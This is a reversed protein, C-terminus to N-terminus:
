TTTAAYAGRSFDYPARHVGADTVIADVLSAPTWDFAPNYVTAGPPASPVGWPEAVEHAARQEITVAAGNPTAPDITSAPALVYFPVRHARAALAVGYTGIKNVVDGNAAIRDAGVLVADIRQDRLTTAAMGDTILTCAVGARSLEWMTLRAGQLLPRTEDAFVHLSWGLRTALHVPALATGIGATALAGANCHTLLRMGDRLLTLGLTGIADCMAADEARIAEAEAHLARAADVPSGLLPAAVRRMREIAWPLNVATPRASAIATAAEDLAVAFTSPSRAAADAMVVALGMAGTVGIAPAGRVALTRIADVLAHTTRLDLFVLAGPLQRQDVIRVGRGDGTWAVTAPLTTM